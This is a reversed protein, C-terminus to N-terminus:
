LNVRGDEDSAGVDVETESVVLLGGLVPIVVAVLVFWWGLRPVRILPGPGM